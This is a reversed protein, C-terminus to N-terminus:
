MLGGAIQLHNMMAQSNFASRTGIFATDMTIFDLYMATSLADPVYTYGFVGKQFNTTGTNINGSTWTPSGETSSNLWLSFVGVTASIKVRIEVTFVSNVPLDIGTDLYGSSPNNFTVRITGYDEINVTCTSADASTLAQFLGAYGTVGFTYGTPIFGKFQFYMESYTTGFDKKASASGSATSLFKASNAGSVKSTTDLTVTASGYNQQVTTFSGVLTAFEEPGFLLAM